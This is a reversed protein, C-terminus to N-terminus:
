SSRTSSRRPRGRCSPSTVGGPWGAGWPAGPPEGPWPRSWPGVGMRSADLGAPRPRPAFLGPLPSGVGSRDRAARLHVRRRGRCGRSAQRRRGRRDRSALWRASRRRIARREPGLALPVVLASSPLFLDGAPGSAVLRWPCLDLIPGEGIIELCSGSAPALLLASQAPIALVHYASSCEVVPVWAPELRGRLRPDRNTRADRGRLVGVALLGLAWGYAALGGRLVAASTGGRAAELYAGTGAGAAALVGAWLAATSVDVRLRLGLTPFSSTCSPRVPRPSSPLRCASAPRRSVRVRPATVSGAEDARRPPRRAGRALPVRDHAAM